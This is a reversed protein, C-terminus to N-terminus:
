LTEVRVPNKQGRNGAVESIDEGFVVFVVNYHYSGDRMKMDVCETV